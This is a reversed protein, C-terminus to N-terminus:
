VSTASFILVRKINSLTKGFIVDNILYLPFSNYLRVPWLHWYPAHANCASYRLSRVCVRFIYYKINKWPLVSKVFEGSNETIHLNETM